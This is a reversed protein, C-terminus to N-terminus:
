SLKQYFFVSLKGVSKAPFKGININALYRMKRAEVEPTEDV